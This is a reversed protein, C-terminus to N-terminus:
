LQENDLFNWSGVLHFLSYLWLGQQFTKIQLDKKTKKRWGWCVGLLYTPTVITKMFLKANILLAQIGQKYPLRVGTSCYLSAVRIIMRCESTVIYLKINLHIYSYGNVLILICPTIPHPHIMPISCLNFHQWAFLQVWPM